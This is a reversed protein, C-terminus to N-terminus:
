SASGFMQVTLYQAPSASPTYGTIKARVETQPALSLSLPFNVAGVSAGAALTVAYADGFPNGDGDTLTVTMTAGADPQQVSLAFGTIAVPAPAKFYGFSQGQAANGALLFSFTFFNPMHNDAFAQGANLNLANTSVALTMGLADCRTQGEDDSVEVPVGDIDIGTLTLVDGPNADDSWSQPFLMALLAARCQRLIDDHQAATTDTMNDMVILKCRMQYVGSGSIVETTGNPDVAFVALPFAMTDATGEGNPGTSQDPGRQPVFTFASYAAVLAPTALTLVHCMVKETLRGAETNM